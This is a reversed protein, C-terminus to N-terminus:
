RANEAVMTPAKPQPEPRRDRQKAGLEDWDVELGGGFNRLQSDASKMLDLCAADIFRLGRSHIRAKTGRPLREIAQALRPLSLFTAAGTLEIEARDSGVDTQVRVQLGALAILNKVAALAFGLAVGTLLDFAVIGVVTAFFVVVEGRGYEAVQRVVRPHALKYGTYVLVAALSATPVTALVFPLAAVFLLLWAGHLIASVRTKGGAQVNASSRVIVGTMPLAGVAGCIMNGVGQAVLEKDFDTRPGTHMKDVAVACLLTEASAIITLGLAAALFSPDALLGLLGATPLTIGDLLNAPVEVYRIPLAFATAVIATVTVGILAGPVVKLRGPALANWGVMGVLTLVGAVAALNHPSGDAPFIGGWVAAPISLLNDLGGGKPADDLLVHFQSAFILVGIGALMGYIVSPSVARFWQGARLKGMLIQLAGALLVALGLAALGHSQVLEWVLVTLGAAPGSVQLPSGALAGVVLGGVIGTILGMAPPVGSAIAIGMCLPLAVLFVVVSALLDRKFHPFRTRPPLPGPM